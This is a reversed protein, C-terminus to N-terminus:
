AKRSMVILAHNVDTFNERMYETRFGGPIDSGPVDLATCIALGAGVIAQLYDDRTHTENPLEYTVGAEDFQTPMGADVFDPHVDTILLRGGPTLVREFQGVTWDLGAVHCLTLGCVVLDFANTEARSLGEEISACRFGIKLGEAVATRKAVALMEPSADLATVDWGRRSLRLAFQGTGSGVDLATRGVLGDLMNLSYREEAAILTNWATDYTKSWRAYGEMVGLKVTAQPKVPGSVDNPSASM